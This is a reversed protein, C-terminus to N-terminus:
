RRPWLEVYPFSGCGWAHQGFPRGPLVGVDPLVLLRHM